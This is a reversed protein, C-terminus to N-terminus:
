RSLVLALVMWAARLSSGPASATSTMPETREPTPAQSIAASAGRGRATSESM